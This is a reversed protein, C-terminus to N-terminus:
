QQAQSSLVGAALLPQTLYPLLSHSQKPLGGTKTITNLYSQFDQPSMMLIRGAENRAEIPMGRTAHAAALNGGKDWLSKIVGGVLGHNLINGGHQMAAQTAPSADQNAMEANYEATPSGAGPTRTRAFNAMGKEVKLSDLFKQANQPGLAASLKKQVIPADFLKLNLRNNQTLSFLKNAIGGKYAELEAPTLKAVHDALQQASIKSDLIASQGRTFASKSSLYDGSVSLADSLGPIAKKLAGTLDGTAVGINYNKPSVSDPLPKGFPDREVQSGVNRRILEWAQATPRPQQIFKGTVPDKGTFGYGQPDIGANRLDEEAQSMAKQVVPRQALKDLDSNWVTGTSRVQDFLPGAKLQGAKVLSDIDGQAAAPHIGSAAAYDGLIRNSADAGRSAMNGALADATAGERRALAGLGVEAPKGLVEAATLPKGTQIANSVASQVQPAGGASDVKQAVYQAAKEIPTATKLLSPARELLGTAGGGLVAAGTRAWPELATGATQQGAFESAAGPIVASAVKPLLGEPGGLAAPAFEGITQAYKGSTTQPEHFPAIHKQIADNLGQSTAQNLVHTNYWDFASKVPDGAGLKNAGWEIAGQELKGVDAPLGALGTVGKVFGTAGSKLVDGLDFGPQAEHSVVSWDAGSPAIPEAKTVTWDDAMM